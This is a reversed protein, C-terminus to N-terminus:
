IKEVNLKFLFVCSITYVHLKNVTKTENWAGQGCPENNQHVKPFSLFFFLVSLCPFMINIHKLTFRCKLTRCPFQLIMILWSNLNIGMKHIRCKLGISLIVYILVCNAFSKVLHLQLASWPAFFVGVRGGKRNKIGLARM